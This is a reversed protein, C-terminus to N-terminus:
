HVSILYVGIMLKHIIFYYLTTFIDNVISVAIANATAM